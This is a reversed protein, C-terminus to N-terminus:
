VASRSIKVQADQWEGCRQAANGRVVALELQGSSGWLAAWEGEPVQSYTRSLGHITTTGLEVKLRKPEWNAPLDDVMINTILNGFSDAYVVRGTVTDGDHHAMRLKSEADLISAVPLDHSFHSLPEGKVLRAAVPAMVDRGHFTHFRETAPFAELKVRWVGRPTHRAAVIELLGNDPGIVIQEAVQAILIPRNSGVGPDVVAVHITGPPFAEVARLLKWSGEAVQQPKVGHTVDVLNARPAIGLIAGKMEAVYFSDTGFDTLLTIIGNPHFAQM